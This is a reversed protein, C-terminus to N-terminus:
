TLWFVGFSPGHRFMFFTLSLLFRFGATFVFTSCKEAYKFTSQQLRGSSSVLSAECVCKDMSVLFTVDTHQGLEGEWVIVVDRRRRRDGASHTHSHTKKHPTRAWLPACRHKSIYTHAHRNKYESNIQVAALLCKIRGPAGGECDSQSLLLSQIM